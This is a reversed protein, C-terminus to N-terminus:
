AAVPRVPACAPAPRKALRAAVKRLECRLQTGLRAIEQRRLERALAEYNRPEEHNM